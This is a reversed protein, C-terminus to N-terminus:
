VRDLPSEVPTRRVPCVCSVVPVLGRRDCFSRSCVVEPTRPDCFSRSYVVEDSVIGVVCEVVEPDPVFLSRGRIRGDELSELVSKWQTLARVRSGLSGQNFSLFHFRVNGRRWGDEKGPFVPGFRFQVM